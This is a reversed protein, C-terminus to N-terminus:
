EIFTVHECKHALIKTDPFSLEKKKSKVLLLSRSKCEIETKFGFLHDEVQGNMLTITVILVYM